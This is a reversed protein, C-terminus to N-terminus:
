CSKREEVHWGIIFFSIVWAEENWYLKAKGLEEEFNWEDYKKGKFKDFWEKIGPYMEEMEDSIPAIQKPVYDNTAKLKELERMNKVFKGGEFEDPNLINNAIQKAVRANKLKAQEEESNGKKISVSSQKKLLNNAYEEYNRDKYFSHLRLYHVALIADHQRREFEKQDRKKQINENQEPGLKRSHKILMMLSELRKRQELDMKTDRLRDQIQQVTINPLEEFNNINEFLQGFEEMDNGTYDKNPFLEKGLKIAQSHPIVKEPIRLKEDRAKHLYYTNSVVEYNARAAKSEKLMQIFQDIEHGNKADQKLLEIRSIQDIGEEATPLVDDYFIPFDDPKYLKYENTKNIVDDKKSRPYQKSFTLRTGLLALKKARANSQPVSTSIKYDQGIATASATGPRYLKRSHQGIHSASSESMSDKRIMGSRGNQSGPRNIRKKEQPECSPLYSQYRITKAFFKNKQLNKIYASKQGRMSTVGIARPVPTQQDEEDQNKKIEQRREAMEKSLPIAMKVKQRNENQLEELFDKKIEEALRIKTERDMDSNEERNLIEEEEVKKLKEGQKFDYIM